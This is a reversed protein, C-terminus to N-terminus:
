RSGAGGPLWFKIDESDKRQRRHTIFRRIGHRRRMSPCGSGHHVCKVLWGSQGLKLATSPFSHSCAMGPISAREPLLRSASAACFTGSSQVPSRSILSPLASAVQFDLGGGDDISCEEKTIEAVHDKHASAGAVRLVDQGQSVTKGIARYLPNGPYRTEEHLHGDELEASKASCRRTPREPGSSAAATRADM